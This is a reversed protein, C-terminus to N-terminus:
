SERTFVGSHGVISDEEFTTMAPLGLHEGFIVGRKPMAHPKGFLEGGPYLLVHFARGVKPFHVQSAIPTKIEEGLGVFPKPLKICRGSM